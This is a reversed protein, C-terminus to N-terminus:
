GDSPTGSSLAPDELGEELKREIDPILDEEIDLSLARTWQFRAERQRGVRWYADGLHDNIVPDAPRLQVARELHVVAEGFNGLRYHAWGLSDVMYGDRQRQEVARRVMDTARDIHIGQDIWSYGLYNLVFPNDPNLELAALFDSEAEPWRKSREHTIGRYYHLIWLDADGGNVREFARDYISSGEDFRERARMIYGIKLLADIDNPREAAMSELLAIADEDQKTDILNDAHALRARWSFTSGPEIVSLLESSEDYRGIDRLLGALMLRGEDHGPDLYMTLRAYILAIEELQQRIGNAIRLLGDAAGRAPTTVLPPLTGEAKLKARDSDIHEFRESGAAAYRDLLDSAGERDGASLKARALARVLWAPAADLSEAKIVIAAAADDFRGAVQNILGAHVQQLEPFLDGERLGDLAAIAADVEGLGMHAWARLLFFSIREARQPTTELATLAAAYDESRLAKAAVILAPLSRAEGEGSLLRAGLEAARDIDGSAAAAVFAHHLLDGNDPEAELARSLLRSARGYDKERAAFRGALYAGYPTHLTSPESLRVNASGADAVQIPGPAVTLGEPPAKDAPLDSATACGALLLVAMTPALLGGRWWATRGNTDIM